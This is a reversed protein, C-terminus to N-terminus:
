PNLSLFVSTNTVPTNLLNIVQTPVSITQPAVINPDLVSPGTFSLKEIGQSHVYGTFQFGVTPGPNPTNMQSSLGVIADNQEGFIAPWRQPTLSQVLPDNPCGTYQNRLVAASCMSCNLSAFNTYIGAILATPLYHPQPQPPNNIANLATSSPGLDEIAGNVNQGNLQVSSFAYNGASALFGRTCATAPLLLNTALPSGLHPTYITIVKHIPGQGFTPNSLYHPLLPLTGALDGGMSHPVVDAQVAAVPIGGPNTGAKFAGKIWAVVSRYAGDANYRFGLSNEAASNLSQYAPNSNTIQTGVRNNYNVRGVSFRSDVTQGTVLPNFNDWNSMDGWLGHILIVPPRLITIQVPALSTNATIDQVQLSVARCALQDDTKTSSQCTGSKFGGGSPRAFDVPARYAAFAHAMGDSDATGATVLIQGSSFSTGGAFDLAGDERPLINAGSLGQDDVLTVQFQHGPGNTDIRIVLQTVGDAGVGNVVRGKTLLGQLQSATKTGNAGNLLARVPDMFSVNLSSTVNVNIQRGTAAYYSICTTSGTGTTPTGIAPYTCTGPYGMPTPGMLVAVGSYSETSM